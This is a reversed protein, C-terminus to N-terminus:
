RRHDRRSQHLVVHLLSGSVFAQYLETGSGSWSELAGGAAAGALTAAALASLAGFGWAKGYRPRIMWWVIFGVPAKHVAVAVTLSADAGPLVAGEFLAHLALGSLGAVLSLEDTRNAAGRSLRAIAWPVAAGVVLAPFVAWGAEELGHEVVHWGLLLPVAFLLARDVVRAGVPHGHLGTYLAAGLFPPLVAAAAIALTM